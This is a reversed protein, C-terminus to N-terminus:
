DFSTPRLSHMDFVQSDGRKTLFSYACLTGVASSFDATHGTPDFGPLLSEPIGKPEIHSIFYLLNAADRNSKQIQKFSILWTTLVATQSKRQAQNSSVFGERLLEVMDHETKNLVELYTTAPMKKANIYATAQKIALPLYDLNRLLEKAVDDNPADSAVSGSKWLSMADELDMVDLNMVDADSVRTAIEASRTTLLMHGLDSRPFYQSIGDDEETEGYIVDADDANDVVIFWRGAKGSSLHKQFTKRPDEDDESKPFDAEKVIDSCAQEFVAGNSASSIFDNHIMELVESKLNLKQAVRSNSDVLAFAALKSLTTALTAASSGRHPTGLFVIARTQERISTKRHLAGRTFERDLEQALDNGHQSITNQNTAKYFVGFVDANYGYTWIRATPIDETLFDNPWFVDPLMQPAEKAQQRSSQRFGSFMSRKKSGSVSETETDEKPGSSSSWTNEPHGGLGHIFIINVEFPGARVGDPGTLETLGTRHVGPM